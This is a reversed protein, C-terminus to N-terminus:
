GVRRRPNAFRGRPRIVAAIGDFSRGEGNASMEQIRLRFERTRSVASRFSVDDTVNAADNHVEPAGQDDTVTYRYASEGGLRTSSVLFEDLDFEQMPGAPGMRGTVMDKLVATGDDDFSSGTKWYAVESADGAEVFTAVGGVHVAGIAAPLNSNSHEYWQGAPQDSLPHRYDLVLRKGNALCYVVHGQDEDHIAATVEIGVYTEYGKGIEVIQGSFTLLNPRGDEANVFHLGAPGLVVSKPNTTGKQYSITQVQYNPSGDPAPGPGTVLGIANRRFAVIPVDFSLPCIAQVPGTGDTWDISLGGANFEYGHGPRKEQSYIIDDEPTGALFLRGRAVAALRAPPVSTNVLRAELNTTDLLEGSGAVFLRPQLPVDIHDASTSNPFRRALYLETGATPHDGSDQDDSLFVEIWVDGIAHRLTGVRVFYIESPSAYENFQLEVTPRPASPVRNGDADLTVYRYTLRNRSRNAGPGDGQITPDVYPYHIPALETRSDEKSVFKPVGGPVINAAKSDWAPDFDVTALVPDQLSKTDGATLLPVFVTSGSVAPSVTHGMSPDYALLGGNFFIQGGVGDLVSTVIRGTTDRVFYGRQAGPNEDDSMDDFGTLIYRTSAVKFVDDGALYASRAVTTDVGSVSKVVTSTRTEIPGDATDVRNLSSFATVVGALHFAASAGVWVEDTAAGVAVTRITSEVEAFTTPNIQVRKLLLSTATDAAWFHLFYLSTDDASNAISLGPGCSINPSAPGVTVTATVPAPSVQAGGTATDLYAHYRKVTLNAGATDVSIAALLVSGNPMLRLKVDQFETAAVTISGSTTVAGAASLKRTEITTGQKVFALWVAGNADAAASVAVIDTASILTPSALLVGDADYVTVQIKFDSTVVLVLHYVRGDSHVVLPKHTGGQGDQNQVQVWSPHARPDTGRGHAVDDADVAYLADSSDRVILVDSPVVDTLPGPLQDSDPEEIVFRDLGLRKRLQGEVTRRFNVLSTLEGPQLSRDNTDTKVGSWNWALPLRPLAM